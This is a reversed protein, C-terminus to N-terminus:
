HQWVMMNFKQGPHKSSRKLIQFPNKPQWRSTKLVLNRRHLVYTKAVRGCRWFDHLMAMWHLMRKEAETKRELTNGTRTTDLAPDDGAQIRNNAGTFQRVVVKKCITKGTTKSRKWEIQHWELSSSTEVAFAHPIISLINRAVNSIDAYKSYTEEQQCWRETIDLLWFTSSIAM